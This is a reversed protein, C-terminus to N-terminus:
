TSHLLVRAAFGRANVCFHVRKHCITTLAQAGTMPFVLPWFARDLQKTASVSIPRNNMAATHQGNATFMLDRVPEYIVGLVPTEGSVLGISVCFHPLGHAFNTTGDLPDIYWARSSSGVGGGGEEAVITDKSFADNLVKLIIQEADRDVETVLDVEGKFELRFDRDWSKMIREGAARAAQQAVRLETEYNPETMFEGGVLFTRVLDHVWPGLNVYTRTNDRTPCVRNTLLVVTIDEVPDNWISTGTFGLHGYSAASFYQGSTSKGPTRRDWALFRNGQRRLHGDIFADTM